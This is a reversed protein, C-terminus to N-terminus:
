VVLNVLVGPKKYYDSKYAKNIKNSWYNENTQQQQNKPFNIVIYYGKENKSEFEQLESNSLNNYYSYKDLFKKRFTKAPENYLKNSSSIQNLPVNNLYKINTNYDVQNESKESAIVERQSQPIYKLFSKYDLEKKLESISKINNADYKSSLNNIIPLTINLGEIRM